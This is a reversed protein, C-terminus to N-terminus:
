SGAGRARCEALMALALASTHQNSHGVPPVGPASWGGDPRQRALMMRMQGPTVLDGRGAWHLMLAREAFQDGALMSHRNARAMPAVTAEILRRLDAEPFAGSRLMLEAAVVIHTTGYGGRDDTAAIRDLLAPGPARVDAWVAEIMLLEVPLYPRIQMIDPLARVESAEPDYAPDFLRLAPDRITARYRAIKEPIMAFRPDGLRRWTQWLVYLASMTFDTQPAFWALGRDIAHDAENLWHAPNRHYGATLRAQWRPAVRGEIRWRLGRIVRQALPTATPPPAAQAPNVSM